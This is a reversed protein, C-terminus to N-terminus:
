EEKKDEAATAAAGQDEVLPKSESAGEDKKKAAPKYPCAPPVREPRRYEWGLLQYVKRLILDFLYPLANVVPILFLPLFCAICVM